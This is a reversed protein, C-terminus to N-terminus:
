GHTSEAAHNLGSSRSTSRWCHLSSSRRCVLALRVEVAEGHGLDSYLTGARDSHYCVLGDTGTAWGGAYGVHSTITVDSRAFPGDLDSEVLFMDYQTHCFCGAGFYVSIQESTPVPTQPHASGPVFSLCASDICDRLGTSNPGDNFRDGLHLGCRKCVREGDAPNHLVAESDDTQARGDITDFYAPWGSHADYAHDSSYLPLGCCACKYYGV